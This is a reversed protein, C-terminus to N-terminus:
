LGTRQVAKASMSAFGLRRACAQRRPHVQYLELRVSFIDLLSDLM